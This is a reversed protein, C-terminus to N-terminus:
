PFTLTVRVPRDHLEQTVNLYGARILSLIIRDTHRLVKRVESGLCDGDPPLWDGGVFRVYTGGRERIDMLAIAQNCTCNPLDAESKFPSQEVPFSTTKSV